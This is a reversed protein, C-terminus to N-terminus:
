LKILLLLLLLLLLFSGYIFIKKFYTNNALFLFHSTKAFSLEDNTL